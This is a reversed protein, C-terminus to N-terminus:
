GSGCGGGHGCRGGGGGRCVCRDVGDDEVQVWVGWQVGVSGWMDVGCVRGSLGCWWLRWGVWVVQIGDEIVKIVKEVDRGVM